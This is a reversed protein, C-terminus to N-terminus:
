KKRKWRVVLVAAAGIALLALTEPEPAPTIIFDLDGRVTGAFVTLAPIFMAAFALTNAGAAAFKRRNLKM